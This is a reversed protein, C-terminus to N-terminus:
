MYYAANKSGRNTEAHYTEKTFAALIDSHLAYMVISFWRVLQQLQPILESAGEPSLYEANCCQWLSKLTPITFKSKHYRDRAQSTM